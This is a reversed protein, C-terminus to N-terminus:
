PNIGNARSRTVSSRDRSRRWLNVIYGGMNEVNKVLIYIVQVEGTNEVCWRGTRGGGRRGFM